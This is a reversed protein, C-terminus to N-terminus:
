VGTLAALAIVTQIGLSGLVVATGGDFLHSGTTEAHGATVEDTRILDLDLHGLARLRTLAAMQRRFFNIWPHCLGSVGRGAHAQNGRRRMVINIGDLVQCLQDIVQFIGVLVRSNRYFQYRLGADSGDSGAHCLCAGLNDQNRTIVSTGSSSRLAGDVIRTKGPLETKGLSM